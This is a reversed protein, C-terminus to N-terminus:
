RVSIFSTMISSQVWFDRLFLHWSVLSWSALCKLSPEGGAARWGTGRLRRQLCLFVLGVTIQLLLVPLVAILVLVGPNIWYFPDSLCLPLGLAWGWRGACCGFTVWLQCRLKPKFAFHNNGSLAPLKSHWSDIYQALRPSNQSGYIPSLDSGWPWPPVRFSEM